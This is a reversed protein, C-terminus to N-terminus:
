GNCYVAFVRVRADNPGGEMHVECSERVHTAKGELQVKKRQHNEEWFYDKGKVLDVDLLGGVSVHPEDWAV